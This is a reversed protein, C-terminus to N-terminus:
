HVKMLLKVRRRIHKMLLAKLLCVIRRSDNACKQLTASKKVNLVNRMKSTANAKGIIIEGVDIVNKKEFNTKDSKKPYFKNINAEKPENQIQMSDNHAREMAAAIKFANDLTLDTESLLKQQIKINQMGCVLRDRLM